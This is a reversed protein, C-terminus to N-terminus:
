NVEAKEPVNQHEVGNTVWKAKIVAGDRLKGALAGPLGDQVIAVWHSQREIPIVSLAYAALRSALEACFWEDYPACENFVIEMCTRLTNQAAIIEPMNQHALPTGSAKVKEVLLRDTNEKTRKYLRRVANIDQNTVTPM